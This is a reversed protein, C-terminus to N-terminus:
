GLVTLLYNRWRGPASLHRGLGSLPHGKRAGGLEDHSAAGVLWPRANGHGSRGPRLAASWLTRALFTSPVNGPGPLLQHVLHREVFASERWGGAELESLWPEPVPVEGLAMALRLTWYVASEGGVARASGAVEDLARTTPMSGEGVTTADEAAAAGLLAAIDAVARWAGWRLEHSWAFHLCAHILQDAAAPVLVAGIPSPIRRARDIVTSGHLHFPHGSPFLSDHLEVVGTGGSPAVLPPAHQHADYSGAPRQGPAPSWGASGLAALAPVLSERPILLDLDRMPRRAMGGFVSYALGAGKLLVPEIGRAALVELVEQLQAELRRAGFEAVMAERRFAEEVEEPLTRGVGGGVDLARRLRPWLAATVEERRALARVDAWEPVTAALAAASASAALGTPGPTAGALRLFLARASGLRLRDTPAQASLTGRQRRDTNRSPGPEVRM